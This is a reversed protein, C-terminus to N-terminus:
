SALSTGILHFVVAVWLFTLCAIALAISWAKAFTSRLGARTRLTVWAHWCTALAALPFVAASLIHLTIIWPDLSSTFLFKVAMLGVTVLWGAMVLGAALALPRAWRYMRAARDDVSLNVGHRRRVLAGIPWAMGMLLIITISVVLLPLLWVASRWIPTPLYVQYPSSYDATWMVVKGDVVRAALRSEGGVEGWVWPAIEEFRKPQGKL